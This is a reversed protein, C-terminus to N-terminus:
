RRKAPPEISRWDRGDRAMLADAEAPGSNGAPYVPLPARDQAWADLIPQLISWAAEVADARQFLTADGIMCDYLLTEYGNNPVVHFYDRYKFRMDVTGIRMAPGPVKAGFRLSVGEDPQIQIVLDNPTLQDVPASQFLTLPAKKFRIVIESSKAALAKGTRLYFPVGAWRWNDVMLKLAVYTETRSRPEVRPEERYAAMAKGDITGAGYQARVVDTLVTEPTPRRVAELIKVKENRSPEADFCTPPEMATLTLLQFLHNPVMDRLAGTADYFAGRGEVGLREAVTIQVHDIHHRNWLPEFLGNAFRLVMVNQVTEKGLYHDIRYIQSEDMVQRLTANLERASELDTGFPKEVVLRRWRGDQERMLGAAGLQRAVLAFQSAPLALYFLHNGAKRRGADLSSLFAKLKAYTSEKDLDGSLYHMREALWHWERVDLRESLLERFSEEMRARFDDDSMPTRSVGVIAFEEPLLRERKLHYLAPVLLRKALDGSAGFIVFSAPGAREPRDDTM